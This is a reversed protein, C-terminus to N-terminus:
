ALELEARILELMESRSGVGLRQRIRAVHHEVTKPSIFLKAGVQKYTQGENILQAVEMERESLKASLPANGVDSVKLDARMERAAALLSKAAAQDDIHMAAAGVIRTAEWRYGLTRLTQGAAAVADADVDGGLSRCWTRMASALEGLRGSSDPLADIRSMLGPAEGRRDAAIAVQLDVWTMLVQVPLQSCLSLSRDRSVRAADVVDLDGLRAACVM